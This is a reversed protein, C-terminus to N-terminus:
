AADALWHPCRMRHAARRTKLREVPTLDLPLSRTRRRELIRIADRLLDDLEDCDICTNM